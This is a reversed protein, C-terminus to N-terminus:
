ILSGNTPEFETYHPCKKTKKRKEELEGQSNVYIVSLIWCLRGKKNTDLINEKYDDGALWIPEALEISAPQDIGWSAASHKKALPYKTTM